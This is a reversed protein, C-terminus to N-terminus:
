YVRVKYKKGWRTKKIPLILKKEHNITGLFVPGYYMVWDGDQNEKIGVYENILAKGVFVDSGKWALVGGSRVRIKKYEESYEPSKLEGKWERNSAKYISAPTKQSLAEHPRKHNFYEQFEKFKLQQEELTLELPYIGENKLTSHMREHRGNQYPKGPEIWEPTVGSKILNISLRSLRGCGCTAFPPGNDHRLYIPLGYEFFANSLVQWVYEFSNFPLKSCFLLYRSFADTLTLPDCKINDKTKFWGKFDIAWIDNPELCKSLSNIRTPFRKRFKRPKTLGNAELIKGITTASPWPILPEEEKLYGLIKKPGWHVYLSKIEIFKEIFENSTKVQDHRAKSRDKLGDFGENIFRDIWKYATKRSIGFKQCLDSVYFKDELFADIFERRQDEVTNVGWAM